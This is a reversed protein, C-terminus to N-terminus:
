IYIVFNAVVVFLSPIIIIEMFTNKNTRDLDLYPRFIRDTWM